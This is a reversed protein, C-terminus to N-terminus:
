PNQHNLYLMGQARYCFTLENPFPLTSNPDSHLCEINPDAPYQPARYDLDSNLFYAVIKESLSLHILYVSLVVLPYIMKTEKLINELSEKGDLIYITQFPRNDSFTIIRCITEM